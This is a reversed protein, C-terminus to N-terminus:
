QVYDMWGHTDPAQGSVIAFFAEQIAATIPGRQGNGVTIRDVSRIPTLEAATGSFFMEDAMYLEERSILREIVTYGLDQAITIVSDRTIGGLNGMSLQPTHLVGDRVLFINEGSGESVYGFADLAVNEAYGNDAAEMHILASNDYNGGAKVMAPFTDPAARRWSSVGIDVGQALADPGLYAGWSWVAIVVQVPCTRPEVGLQNYGRFVLPRIYCSDLKNKVVTDKIAQAIAEPSFPIEMRYVRCGDFLRRVHKGLRFVASGRPTAYCRIGEFVNSGYHLAHSLVHVKAEGWPVFEGDFWIYDSQPMPM